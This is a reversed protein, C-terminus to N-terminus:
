DIVLPVFYEELLSGKLVKSISQECSRMPERLEPFIRLLHNARSRSNDRMDIISAPCEYGEVDEELNAPEFALAHVTMSMLCAMELPTPFNSLNRELKNYSLNEAGRRRLAMIDFYYKSVVSHLINESAVHSTNTDKNGTRHERLGTKFSAYLSSKLYHHGGQAVSDTVSLVAHPIGSPMTLIGGEEVVFYVFTHKDIDVDVMGESPPEGDMVFWIKAGRQVEVWTCFKGADYHLRTLAPATAFLSWRTDHHPFGPGTALEGASSDSTVHHIFRPPLIAPANPVDLINMARRESHLVEEISAKIIHKHVHYPDYHRLDHVERKINVNIHLNSSIDNANLIPPKYADDIEARTRPALILCPRSALREEREKFDKGDVRSKELCRFHEIPLIEPLSIGCLADCSPIINPKAKSDPTVDDIVQWQNIEEVTAPRSRHYLRWFIDRDTGMGAPWSVKFVKEEKRFKGDDLLVHRIVCVDDEIDTEVATDSTHGCVDEATDKEADIDPARARADIPDDLEILQLEVKDDFDARATPPVMTYTTGGRKWRPTESRARKAAVNEHEDVQDIKRKSSGNREEGKKGKGDRSKTPHHSVPYISPPNPKKIRTSRRLEDVSETEQNLDSTNIDKGQEDDSEETMPSLSGEFTDPGPQLNVDSLLEINPAAGQSPYTAPVASSPATSAIPLQVTTSGSDQTTSHASTPSSQVTASGTTPPAPTTYSQVTTPDPQQLTSDATSESPRGGSVSDTDPHRAPTNTSMTDTIAPPTANSIPPNGSIDSVIQKKTSAAMSDANVSSVTPDGCPLDALAEPKTIRLPLDSMHPWIITTHVAPTRSRGSVKQMEMSLLHVLDTALYCQMGTPEVLPTIQILMDALCKWMAKESMITRQSLAAPTGFTANVVRVLSVDKTPFSLTTLDVAPNLVFLPTHCLALSAPILRTANSPAKQNETGTIFLELFPRARTDINMQSISAKFRSVYNSEHINLVFLLSTALVWMNAVASHQRGLAASNMASVGATAHGLHLKEEDTLAGWPKMKSIGTPVASLSNSAASIVPSTYLTSPISPPIIIGEKDGPQLDKISATASDFFYSPYITHSLNVFNDLIRNLAADGMGLYKVSSSSVKPLIDNCVLEPHRPHLINDDLELDEEPLAGWYLCDLLHTVLFRQLHQASVTNIPKAKHTGLGFELTLDERSQINLELVDVKRAVELLLPQVKTDKWDATEARIESEWTDARKKHKWREVSFIDTNYTASAVYTTWPLSKPRTTATNTDETSM